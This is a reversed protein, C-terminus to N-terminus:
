PLLDDGFLYLMREVAWSPPEAAPSSVLSTRCLPCTMRDDYSLWRDLCHKHFVHRCNTLEWVQSKKGLRNLCVTCSVDDNQSNQINELTTLTLNKRM